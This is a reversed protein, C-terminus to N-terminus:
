GGEKARTRALDLRLQESAWVRVQDEFWFKIGNWYETRQEIRKFWILLLAAILVMWIMVSIGNATYSVLHALSLHQKAFKFFTEIEWRLRYLEVWEVFTFPGAQQEDASLVVNILLAFPTWRQRRADWRETVFRLLPMQAWKAQKPRSKADMSNEFVVQEVRLLRCPASKQVAGTGVLPAPSPGDPAREAEPLAWVEKVVRVAQDNQPVLFFGGRQHISLLRDRDSLGRDVIWLDGPQTAEIMPDGLAPNDNAESQERCLHLFSPLGEASLELVSKVHRKASEPNQKGGAAVHIGFALVKASLTVTTADVRRLRFGRADHATMQPRIERHVHEFLARFYEPDITALRKGFSSHDATEGTLKRYQAELLRQTAAPHRLMTNLLCLFVTQGRLRIQNAKNVRVKVALRDLLKLPLLDFLREAPSM